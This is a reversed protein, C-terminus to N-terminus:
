SLLRGVLNLPISYQAQEAAPIAELLARLASVGKSSSAERGALSSLSTRQAPARQKPVAALEAPVLSHQQCWLGINSIIQSDREPRGLEQAPIMTSPVEVRGPPHESGEDLDDFEFPKQVSIWRQKGDLIPKAFAAWVAPDFKIKGSHRDAGDGQKLTARESGSEGDIQISTGLQDRLIPLLKRRGLVARLPREFHRSLQQGLAALSMSDGARKLLEKAAEAVEADGIQYTKEAELMQGVARM